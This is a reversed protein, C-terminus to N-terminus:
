PARLVWVIGTTQELARSEDEQAQVYKDFLHAHEPFQAKLQAANSRIVATIHENESRMEEAAQLEGELVTMGTAAILRKAESFHHYKGTPLDSDDPLVCDDILLLGGPAIIKQLQRITAELNGLINGVAGWVAVDYRAATALWQKLDGQVFNCKDDVSWERAKQRAEAIFAALGDVGWTEYGLRAAAKICVPGKGCGLDALTRYSPRHYKQVYEVMQDSDVGLDWLGSLLASLYNLLEPTADVTELCADTLADNQHTTNPNM